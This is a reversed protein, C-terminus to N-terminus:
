GAGYRKEAGPRQCYELLMVAVRLDLTRPYSPSRSM